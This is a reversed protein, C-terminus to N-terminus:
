RRDPEAYLGSPAAPGRRSRGRTGRGLAVWLVKRLTRGDDCPYQFRYDLEWQKRAAWSSQLATEGSGRSLTGHVPGGRNWWILSHYSLVRLIYPDVSTEVFGRHLDRAPHHMGGAWHSLVSTRRRHAARHSLLKRGGVCEHISCVPCGGPRHM